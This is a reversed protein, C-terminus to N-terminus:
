HGEVLSLLNVDFLCWLVRVQHLSSRVQNAHSARSYEVIQTLPIKAGSILGFLWSLNAM